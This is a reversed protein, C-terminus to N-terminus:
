KSTGEIWQDIFQSCSPCNAFSHLMEYPLLSTRYGCVATSELAFTFHIYRSRTM